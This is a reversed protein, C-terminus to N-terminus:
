GRTNNFLITKFRAVLDELIKLIESTVASAKSFRKSNNVTNSNEGTPEPMFLNLGLTSSFEEQFVHKWVKQSGGYIM